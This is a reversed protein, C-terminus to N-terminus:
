NLYINRMTTQNRNSHYQNFDKESDYDYFVGVDEFAYFLRMLLTTGTKACGTIFITRPFEM